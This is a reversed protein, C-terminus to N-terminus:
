IRLEASITKRSAANPELPNRRSRESRCLWGTM